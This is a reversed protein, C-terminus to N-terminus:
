VAACIEQLVQMGPRTVGPRDKRPQKSTNRKKLWEANKDTGNRRAITALEIDKKVLRIPLLVAQGRSILGFKISGEAYGIDKALLSMSGSNCRLGEYMAIEFSRATATTFNISSAKAKHIWARSVASYVKKMRSYWTKWCPKAPDNWWLLDPSQTLVQEEWVEVLENITKAANVATFLELAKKDPEPKTPAATVIVAPSKTCVAIPMEVPGGQLMQLIREQNELIKDQKGSAVVQEARIEDNQDKAEALKRNQVTMAKATETGVAEASFPEEASKVYEDVKRAWDTFLPQRFLPQKLIAHGSYEDQNIMMAAAQLVISRCENLFKLMAAVDQSNEYLPGNVQGHKLNEIEASFDPFVQVLLSNPPSPGDSEEHCDALPNWYHGGEDYRGVLGCNQRIVPLCLGRLGYRKDKVRENHGSVADVEQPTAGKLQMMKIGLNRCTLVLLSM